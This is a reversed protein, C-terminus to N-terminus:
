AKNYVLISSRELAAAIVLTQGPVFQELDIELPILDALEKDWGDTDFAWTAFGGSEDVGRIEALDLQIAIDLDSDERHEGRARSGFLWVRLILPKDTAWAAVKKSIEEIGM